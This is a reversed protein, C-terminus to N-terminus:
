CYICRNCIRRRWRRRNRNRSRSRSRNRYHIVRRSIVRRSRDPDIVWRSIVRRSSRRRHIVWRSVVRRSRDSDVVRRSVVWRSSRGIWPHASEGWTNGKTLDRWSVFVEINQLGLNNRGNAWRTIIRDCL